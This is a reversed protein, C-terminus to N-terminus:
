KTKGKGRTSHKSAKKKEWSIKRGREDEIQANGVLVINFEDDPISKIFDIEKEYTRPSIEEDEPRIIGPPPPRTQMFRALALKVLQGRKLSGPVLKVRFIFGELASFPACVAMASIVTEGPQPNGVLSHLFDFDITEEGEESQKKELLQKRAEKILRNIDSSDAVDGLTPCKRVVHGLEGCLFCSKSQESEEDDQEVDEADISPELVEVEQDNLDIVNGTEDLAVTGLMKSRIMKEEEDQDAYKGKIKKIKSRKGRVNSASPKSISSKVKKEIGEGESKAIASRPDTLKSKKMVKRQARSIGKPKPEEMKESDMKKEQRTPSNDPSHSDSDSGDLALDGSLFQSTVDKLVPISHDLSSSKAKHVIDGSLSIDSPSITKDNKEDVNENVEAKFSELRSKVSEADIRFLIGLGMSLSTPPLFNKKGRVMFSGTPLFLGSPASKSVQDAEVWYASTVVKQDWASSRTVTFAAAQELSSVPVAKGLALFDPPIKLVVSPAGRIESHFYKDGKKLYYGVLKENQHADRGGVVLFGDSTLFWHFKEFWLKRRKQKLGGGSSKPAERAKLQAERDAKAKARKLAVKTSEETKQAKESAKKKQDYIERANAHASLGLDVPVELYIELDPHYLKMLIENQKFNLKTISLFVDPCDEDEQREQLMLEIEVWPAGKAIESNIVGIASDVLDVNYEIAQAEAMWRESIKKFKELRSKHDDRVREVKGKSVKEQKASAITQKKRDISYFYDDCALSFSPKQVRSAEDAEDFGLPSFDSYDGDENSDSSKKLLWGPTQETCIQRLLLIGHKLLAAVQEAELDNVKCDDLSFRQLISKIVSKPLLLSKTLFLSISPPKEQGLAALIMDDLTEGSLEFPFKRFSDEDSKYVEGVQVKNDEDSDYVRLLAMIKYTQDTLIINGKGYIECILYFCTVVGSKSSKFQFEVVRDYGRLRTRSLRLGKLHKRLKMAFGNPVQTKAHEYRTAHVRLGNEVLVTVKGTGLMDDEDAHEAKVESESPTRLLQSALAMSHPGAGAFKLLYMTNSVSYVNVLRVDALLLALEKVSACVDLVTMLTKM